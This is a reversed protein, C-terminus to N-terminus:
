ESEILSQYRNFLIDLYKSVKNKDEPYESIYENSIYTMMNYFKKLSLSDSDLEGIYFYVGDFDEPNDWDQDLSYGTYEDSSIGYGKSAEFLINVFSLKNKILVERIVTYLDYGDNEQLFKETKDFWM